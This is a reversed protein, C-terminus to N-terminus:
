QRLQLSRLLQMADQNDPQIQVAKIAADRAEELQKLRAHITARAYPISADNPNAQEGRKLADIAGATDGKANRALGLNYWARAYLPELKVTQELSRITAEADGAENYALSLKFHYEATNPELRVAEELEHLAEKLKGTTSYAVALEHRIPASNPDWQAAKEYHLLANAADNRAFYYAGQQLQGSPQDANLSLMQQLEKGVPSAEDLSSRLSWAAALRVSRVPDGLLQQVTARASPSNVALLPEMARAVSARVLPDTNAALGMVTPFVTRDTMFPDMLRVASAKWYGSETESQILKMLGDRSAPDGNRASAITLAGYRTSREMKAGYWKETATLSWDTDKDTHCRNCANPVGIQKTLLPDPITFGHDHRSHRQMYVTQPMHCNICQSGTSQPQHFTHAALNIAPAKPFAPTPATHCRMCLDNGPLITKGTHPNHCDSCSVGASHMKSSLFSSLEYDEDRIQGDAHFLNSEDVIALAHHDFFDDGPKFDGTLESRRAHCAGCSDLTQKPTNKTITPDVERSNPYQKRWGAHAKMPGHCAECSVTMEAMKTHFSDTPEDYNKRLRTNHCSACMTNWTMGRGTWHGWEGPKRDENGYVNFWENKHPDYSAELTQLRGGFAKVLYQRLPDNGIVREVEYPQQKNEFGLSVVEHKGEKVRVETTQSGHQMSRAPEFSVKDMDDRLPREALGHNSKSWQEFLAQHCERCSQSGAYQAFAQAEPEVAANAVWSKTTEITTFSKSSSTNYLWGALGLLAASLLILPILWGRSPKKTELATRKKEKGM